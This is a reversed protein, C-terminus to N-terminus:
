QYTNSRVDSEDDADNAFLVDDDLVGNMVRFVNDKRWQYSFSPDITIPLYQHLAHKPFLRLFSSLANVESLFSGPLTVDNTFYALVDSQPMHSLFSMLRYGCDRPFANLAPVIYSSEKKGGAVCHASMEQCMHEAINFRQRKCSSDFWCPYTTMKKNVYEIVEEQAVSDACIGRFAWHWHHWEGGYWLYAGLKGTLINTRLYSDLFLSFRLKSDYDKRNQLVCAFLTMGRSVRDVENTNVLELTLCLYDNGYPSTEGCKIGDVHIVFFAFHDKCRHKDDPYAFLVHERQRQTIGTTASTNICEHAIRREASEVLLLVYASVLGLEKLHVLKPEDLSSTSCGESSKVSDFFCKLSPYFVASEGLKDKVRDMEKQYSVLVRLFLRIDLKTAPTNAIGYCKGGNLCLVKSIENRRENMAALEQATLSSYGPWNKNQFLDVDEIKLKLDKLANSFSQQQTETERVRQQQYQKM